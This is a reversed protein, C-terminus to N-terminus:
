SIAAITVIDGQSTIRFQTAGGHMGTVNNVHARAGTINIGTIPIDSFVPQSVVGRQTGVDFVLTDNEVTYMAIIDGPLALELTVWSNRGLSFVYLAQQLIEAGADTAQQLQTTDSTNRNQELFFFSVGTLLLLGIGTVLLFELSSQGRAGRRM